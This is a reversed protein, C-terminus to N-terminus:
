CVHGIITGLDYSSRCSPVVSQLQSKCHRQLYNQMAGEVCVASSPGELAQKKRKSRDIVRCGCVFRLAQTDRIRNVRLLIAAHLLSEQRINHRLLLRIRVIYTLRYFRSIESASNWVTALVLVAYNLTFSMNM